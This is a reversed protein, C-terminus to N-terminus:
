EKSRTHPIGCMSPQVQARNAALQMAKDLVYPRNKVFKPTPSRHKLSLLYLDFLKWEPLHDNGIEAVVAKRMAAITNINGFGAQDLANRVRSRQQTQERAAQRGSLKTTM